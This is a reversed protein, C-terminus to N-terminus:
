PAGIHQVTRDLFDDIRRLAELRVPDAERLIEHASAPFMFLEAKPILGAARRIASASVLRDCDSGIIFVPVEIAALANPTLRAMSLFAANVWRWGPPGLRFGPNRDAWWGEDEFREVSSTLVSQRGIRPATSLNPLFRALFAAVPPGLWDPLPDTNIGLMPASLVAADVPPTCEALLRATLHGGMSHGIIVHPGPNQAIWDRAIGDFDDVLFDMSEINGRVITGRSDGQGRWDFTAIHWGRRHWHGLAELYKEVFDGRGGAFLISGRAKAEAPQPWDMCRIAWGDKATWRSFSAGQPHARRDIADM